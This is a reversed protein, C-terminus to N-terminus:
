GEAVPLNHQRKWTLRVARGKAELAEMSSTALNQETVVLEPGADLSVFHPALLIVPRGREARLHELGSPRILREIRERPSWWLIGRELFSRGVARFHRRALRRRAAQPLDPFCRVLNVSCVRRRERGLAYFVLGFAEGLPALLELPLFHLLWMLAVAIRAIM